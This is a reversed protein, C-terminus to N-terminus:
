FKYSLSVGLERGKTYNRHTYGAGKIVQEIKNESNVLNRATIGVGIRDFEFKLNADLLHVPNEYFNGIMNTGLAFLSKGVYSYTVVFDMSAKGTGLKQHYGLNVNALLDAVGQVKDNSQGNFQIVKGNNEAIFEEESKLEQDSHMYTANLFTYFKSHDWDYLDKRLEVEAGIVYGWNAINFYTMDSSAATSYTTRAIPDLLYKGFATLSIVEGPKAFWEWKLDVNYNDSPRLNPNGYVNTTVDYYSIPVLEKPQPLTYTKSASLRINQRDTLSYKANLAPLFKNYTQKKQGIGLISDDWNSNLNVYDFRGGAQVVLRDSFQYDLNVFGSQVNQELSYNFPLYRSNDPRFTNYIIIGNNAPNIVGDVNNHDVTTQMTFNLGITTNDFTRDKYLGNYGFNVKLNDFSKTLTLFGNLTKDNLEDFYRHNNIASGTIFINNTQDITNQLRDPRQSDMINYGVGWDASWTDKFKHNGYLQNILTSTIKNDGRNIYVNGGIERMYGNFFRADQKSTHIFNSTFGIRNRGNFKYALNLLATNNTSYTFREVELRKMADGTSDYWGEQGQSYVYSNDFGAYGFVSLKGFSVGGEIDMSSNFPNDANKFNWNTSFPYNTYPNGKDFSAKKYGFFGPGGDQLKFNGKDFTQLNVASGIGLKLYPRGIHEKSVININAGGFDGSLRPHYVKDLAIYEIISTKFIELNINKLEPNDSPIVLGNMTTGNYRDGLGRIIIQGSGEQKQTGTAKTVATAANSIGQKELQTSGVREIVEVSKRQLNIINNETGKRTNGQIVVAEIRSENPMTDSGTQAYVAPVAGILFVAGISLKSVRM